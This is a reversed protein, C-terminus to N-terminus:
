LHVMVTQQEPATPGSLLGQCPSGQLEKPTDDRHKYYRMQIVQIVNFQSFNIQCLWSANRIKQKGKRSKQPTGCPEM